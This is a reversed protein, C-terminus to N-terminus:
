YVPKIIDAIIQKSSFNKQKEHRYVLCVKDIHIPSNSIMKLNSYQAAVREPLLGIGIGLHALKAVVELNESTLHTPFQSAKVKKIVAKSQLLNNDYILTKKAKQQLPSKQFLGVQDRCLEKIVLDPHPKPNVVIGFDVKWNIVQETIERSLGHVLKLNLDPYDEILKPLFKDLTYLAVSPHLGLSFEGTVKQEMEQTVKQVEEWQKILIHARSAFNKGLHTLQVGNKLRILLEGGIENELRKISYSLTPQTVGLIESARTVNLSESVTLFYKIDDLQLAM